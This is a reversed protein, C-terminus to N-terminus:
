RGRSIRPADRRVRCVAHLKWRDRFRVVHEKGLLLLLRQELREWVVPCASLGLKHDSCTDPATLKSAQVCVPEQRSLMDHVDLVYPVPCLDLGVGLPLTSPVHWVIITM